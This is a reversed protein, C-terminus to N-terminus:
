VVDCSFSGFNGVSFKSVNPAGDRTSSYITKFFACSLDIFPM